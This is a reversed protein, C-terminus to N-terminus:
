GATKAAGLGILGDRTTDRLAHKAWEVVEDEQSFLVIQRETSLEHLLDLLTATRDPDSQVTVDDLVLPAREDGSGLHDALAMRLLLYAQEMTGHSLIDAGRFVGDPGRVEIQLSDPSVSVDTYRGGTVRPLWPRISATLAPAINSNVREKAAELHQEALQLAASLQQVEDLQRRAQAEREIAAAPHHAEESSVDLQGSLGADRELLADRRRRADDLKRDIDEPVADPRDGLNASADTVAGQLEEVTQGDLVQELRALLERRQEHQARLDEQSALWASLAPTLDDSDTSAGVQDAAARLREAAEDWAQRQQRYRAEAQERAELTDQLGARRRARQAQAARQRCGEIYREWADDITTEDDLDPMRSQLLSRLSVEADAVRQDLENARVQWRRFRKAADEAGDVQRALERLQVPDDTLGRDRVTQTVHQRSARHEVRLQQRQRLEAELQEVGSDPQPAIPARGPDNVDPAAPPRPAPPPAGVDPKTPLAKTQVTGRVGLGAAALGVAALLVGPIVLGLALLVIGVVLGIGGGILLAQGAGAHPATSPESAEALRREYDAREAEHEQAAQDYERLAAEYEARVADYQDRREQWDALRSEHEAMAQQREARAQALQEELETPAEPEPRALVEAFTRLEDADLETLSADPAVVPDECHSTAEVRASRLNDHAEAVGSAVELDGSPMEPLTEIQQRLDDSSPGDPLTPEEGRDRYASVRETVLRITEGDAPTPLNALPAMQQQISQATALRGELALVDRWRVLKNLRAVTAQAADLEGSSQRRAALMRLLTDHHDRADDATAVAEEVAQTARGLPRSALWPLGVQTRRQEAITELAHEVTTDMTTSAAARELFEQLEDADELVRLVDAQAVFITARASDRTLGLLTSGDATGDYEWNDVSVNADTVLDTTTTEGKTLNHTIALRRGNDLTIEVGVRWGRTNWPKHRRKFARQEKTGRGRARRINCLGAWTAAFWSSKGAENPGHIVTMGPALDLRQKAFPGFADAVVADIRM